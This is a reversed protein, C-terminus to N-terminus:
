YIKFKILNSQEISDTGTLVSYLVHEVATLVTNICIVGLMDLYKLVHTKFVRLFRLTQPRLTTWIKFDMWCQHLGLAKRLNHNFRIQVTIIDMTTGFPRSSHDIIKFYLPNPVEWTYVGNMAQAATILEGTRSDM